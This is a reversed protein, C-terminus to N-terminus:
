PARDARGAREPNLDLSRSVTESINANDKVM